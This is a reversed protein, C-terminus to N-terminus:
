GVCNSLKPAYENSYAFNNVQNNGEHTAASVSISPTIIALHDILLCVLEWTCM